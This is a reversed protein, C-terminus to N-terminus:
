LKPFRNEEDPGGQKDLYADTTGESSVLTAVRNAIPWHSLTKQLLLILIGLLPTYVALFCCCFDFLKKCALLLLELEHGGGAIMDPRPLPPFPRPFPPALRWRLTRRSLM